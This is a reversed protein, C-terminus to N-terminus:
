TAAHNVTVTATNTVSGLIDLYGPVTRQTYRNLNEVTYSQLRQNAGSDDGGSKATQAPHIQAFLTNLGPNM